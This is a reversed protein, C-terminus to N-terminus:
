MEEEVPLHSIFWDELRQMHSNAPQSTLVEEDSIWVVQDKENFELHWANAKSFDPEVSKRVAQNLADDVVLLGMETNLKLSRPDLNASGIFVKDNDVVFVKAHLALNKSDTPPFMYLFRLKADARVEHLKAGHTMLTNIHNRYASHAALHNNSRLSNTLIKVSVGRDVAREIAGELHPTPILYASVLLIEDEAQDFLRVLENAVQVPAMETDEPRDQAPLDVYLSVDGTFASKVANVWRAKMVHDTEESHLHTNDAAIDRAKELELTSPEIHSLQDIPISWHDNWYEDFSDTLEEIIPGGVLLEMDRFNALGHLGYYEDALNRGGVIAVQSDVIMAKNHMRHDLRHFENLNVLMRGVLSKARRKYPNYIRYEINPHEHLALLFSEEGALFTDDILMKVLVGRDAARILHDMVMSGVVDTSWLFTQLDISRTASDIALLRWDLSQGGDSLLIQWDGPNISDLQDWLDNHVAAPSYEPELDVSKLSSCASLLILLVLVWSANHASHSTM